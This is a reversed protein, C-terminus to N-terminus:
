SVLKNAKAFMAAPLGDFALLIEIVRHRWARSIDLRASTTRPTPTAKMTQDFIVTEVFRM